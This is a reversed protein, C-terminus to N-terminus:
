RRANAANVTNVLRAVGAGDVRLRAGDLAAMVGATVADAIAQADLGGLGGPSRGGTGASVLEAPGRGPTPPPSTMAPDASVALTSPGTDFHTM